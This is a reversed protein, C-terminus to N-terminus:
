DRSARRALARAAGARHSSVPVTAMEEAVEPKSGVLAGQYEKLLMLKATGADFDVTILDGLEIQHRALLNSLPFVVHREIARKLHRAGSKTDTRERAHARKGSLRGTSRWPGRGASWPGFADRASTVSL